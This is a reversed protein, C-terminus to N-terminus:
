PILGVEFLKLFVLGTIVPIIVLTIQSFQLDSYDHDVRYSLDFPNVFRVV